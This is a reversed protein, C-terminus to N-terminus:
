QGSEVCFGELAASIRAVDGTLRLRKIRSTEGATVIVARRPLDLAKALLRTLAENAAGDNPAAAVRVGLAVSGDDSERLGDIRDCGGRPTVRVVLQVGDGDSRWPRNM